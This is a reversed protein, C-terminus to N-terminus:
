NQKVLPDNAEDGWATMILYYKYGAYVVPQLVIPDDAVIPLPKIKEELFYQNKVSLSKLDFEKLPAIIELPASNNGYDSASRYEGNSRKSNDFFRASTLTGFKVSDSISKVKDMLEMMNEDPIMGTYFTVPGCVFGYKKCLKVVQNLTIFKCYPYNRKFYNLAELTKEMNELIQQLEQNKNIIVNLDITTKSKVFGLQQLDQHKTVIDTSLQIEHRQEKILVPLETKLLNEQNYFDQHIQAITLINEALTPTRTKTKFLFM